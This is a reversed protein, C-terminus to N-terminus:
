IFSKLKYIKKITKSKLCKPTSIFRKIIQNSYKGFTYINVKPQFKITVQISSQASLNGSSQNVSFPEKVDLEFYTDM